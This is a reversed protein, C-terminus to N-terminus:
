KRAGGKDKPPQRKQASAYYGKKYYGTKEDDGDAVVALLPLEEYTQTLYGESDITGDVLDAVVIVAASLLVGLVLGYLAFKRYNPSVQTNSEIAYDVVRVSSGEVIQAIKAPLIDAVTNAILAAHKYNPCTVTVKFVETDDVPAASVMSRLQGYTYELKTQEQVQEMVSRSELIVMYTHVLGQAASLQSSSFGPTSEGYTNNVYLQASASYQPTKFLYAYGFAMSACLVGVLIILWLRDLLKWAMRRLDIEIVAQNETM